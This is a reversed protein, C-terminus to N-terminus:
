EGAPADKGTPPLSPPLSGGPGGGPPTPLKQGAPIETKLSWNCLGENCGCTELISFCLKVDCTTMVNAAETTTTCVERGCGATKCDADTTCEGDAQPQEVRDVCQDYLGRPTMETPAPEAPIPEPAPEKAVGDDSPVDPTSKKANGGCAALLLGVFLARTM